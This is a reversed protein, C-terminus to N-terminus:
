GRNGRRVQGGGAAREAVANMSGSAERVAALDEDVGITRDRGAAKAAYLRRDAARLAAAFSLENDILAVGVSATVPQDVDAVDRAVCASIRLRLAEAEAEPREGYLLLAFEEGGIRAAFADGSALTAGVAVIVADGRDHGFGDNIQKFHDIDFLAVARPRHHAFRAELSRRNPLGTLPDSHAIRNLAEARARAQDNDRKLRMFRDGVEISSLAMEFGMAGFLAYLFLAFPRGLVIDHFLSVGCVLLVGTWALAQFRATRSGRAIAQALAVVLLLLVAVLTVNRFAMYLPPCPSLLMAPTTTAVLAAQWLLLARLRPSLMGPELFVRLFLGVIAVSSDFLVNILVQRALGENSLWPGLPLSSLSIVMAVLLIVRVAQLLLFSEQLVAFFALNYGATLLLFGLLGGTLVDPWHLSTGHAFTSQADAPSAGLLGLGLVTLLAGWRTIALKM